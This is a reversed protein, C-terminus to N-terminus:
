FLFVFSSGHRTYLIYPCTDLFWVDPEWVRTWINKYAFCTNLTKKFRPCIHTSLEGRKDQSFFLTRVSTVHRSKAIREASNPSLWCKYHLPLVSYKPVSNRYSNIVKLMKQSQPTPERTAGESMSIDFSVYLRIKALNFNFYLSIESALIWQVIISGHTTLRM